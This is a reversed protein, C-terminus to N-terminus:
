RKRVQESYPVNLITEEDNKSSNVYSSLCSM